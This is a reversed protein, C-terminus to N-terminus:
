GGQLIRYFFYALYGLAAMISLLATTVMIRMSQRKRVSVVREPGWDGVEPQVRVPVDGNLNLDSFVRAM